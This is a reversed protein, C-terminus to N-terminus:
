ISNDVIIEREEKFTIMQKFKNVDYKLEDFPINLAKIELHKNMEQKMKQQHAYIQLHSLEQQQPSDPSETDVYSLRRQPQFNKPIQGSLTDPSFVTPTIGSKVPQTVIMKNCM